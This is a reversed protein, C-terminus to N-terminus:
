RWCASATQCRTARRVGSRCHSPARHTPMACAAAPATSSAAAAAAAASDPCSRQLAAPHATVAVHQARPHAWAHARGAGAAGERRRRVLDAPAVVTVPEFQAIARIVDSFAAKAPGAADRWVDHRLPWAVWCGSHHAWEAPMAFEVDGEQLELAKGNPLTITPAGPAAASAVGAAAAAYSLAQTGLLRVGGRSSALM